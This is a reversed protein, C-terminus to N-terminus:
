RPYPGQPNQPPGYPNQAGQPGAPPAYPNPPWPSSWVQALAQPHGHARARADTLAQVLEHQWRESERGAVGRAMRDRLFALETVATQYDRIAKAAEKGAQREVAARWSRRGALSTLPQVEDPAIWGAAVMGALQTAVIRQERRRQWIVIVVMAIFVPVMILAYVYIFGAGQLILTSGNWLGHLIIAGIYGLLPAIFRVAPNATRAAIGIGIGTMSTFIPHAFPGLVCRMFFLFLGGGLGSESFASGLYGINEVFAFGIGVFGAYVIGDLIGDFEKRRRWFILLVFLGKCFEEVVPATVALGLADANETGLTAEWAHDLLLSGILATIVSITAGWLFAALLLRGPEPEWRDIWLYVGVVPLVPLFAFLTALVGPVIGMNLVLVGVILVGLIAMIVLLAVPVLVQKRQQRMWPQHPYGPAPGPGPYQYPGPGSPFTVLVGKRGPVVIASCLFFSVVAITGAQRFSV